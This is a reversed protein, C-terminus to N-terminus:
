MQTTKLKKSYCFQLLDEVYVSVDGIFLSLKVKAKGPYFPM